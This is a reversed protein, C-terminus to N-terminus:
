TFRVEYYQIGTYLQEVNQITQANFKEVTQYFNQLFLIWIYFFFRFNKIFDIKRTKYKSRKSINSSNRPKNRQKLSM